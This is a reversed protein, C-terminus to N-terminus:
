KRGVLRVIETMLTEVPEAPETPVVAIAKNGEYRLFTAGKLERKAMGNEDVHWVSQSMATLYTKGKEDRRLFVVADEGTRLVADGLIAQNRGADKGGFQAVWVVADTKGKLTQSVILETRTVMVGGDPSQSTVAKGVRARLVLDSRLLLEERALLVMTTANANASLGFALVVILAVIWQKMRM